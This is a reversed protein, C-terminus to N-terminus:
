VYTRLVHLFLVLLVLRPRGGQSLRHLSKEHWQDLYERQSLDFNRISWIRTPASRTFRTVGGRVLVQPHIYPRYCVDVNRQRSNPWALSLSSIDRYYPSNSVQNSRVHHLINSCPVPLPPTGTEDRLGTSLPTFTHRYLSHGSVNM